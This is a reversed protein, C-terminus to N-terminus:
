NGIIPMDDYPWLTLQECGDDTIAYTNEIKVGAYGPVMCSAAYAMTMNKEMVVEPEDLSAQPADNWRIGMGSFHNSFTMQYEKVDELTKLPKPPIPRMRAIDHNTMGPKILRAARHQIDVTTDYLAQQLPTPKGGILFTRSYCTKYGCWTVHCAEVAMFEGPRVTRDTWNFHRPACRAGSETIWGELYEAGSAFIGRTMIGRAEAETMGPTFERILRAMGADNCTAAQRMLEIEDDTKVMDAELIWANGDVVSLGVGELAKTVIPGTYDVSIPLNDVGHQKMISKIQAATKAWRKEQDEWPRLMIVAPDALVDPTVLRDKLWPTDELIRMEAERIPYYPFGGDRILLIFHSVLHKTYPHNWPRGLYRGSDWSFVLAAGIGWKHLMKNAKDLRDQRLKAFDIRQQWDVNMKGYTM